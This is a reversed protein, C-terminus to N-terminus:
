RSLRRSIEPVSSESRDHVDSGSNSDSDLDLLRRLLATLHELEDARLASVARPPRRLNADASGIADRGAATLAVLKRRRDAPHLQREVLGHSELKDVVLTAYPADFRNAEALQSLTLPGNRLQFLIKGRGAGLSFGLADALDRHRSHTDVFERMLTWAQEDAGGPQATVM